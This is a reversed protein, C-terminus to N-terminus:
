KAAMQDVAFDFSVLRMEGAALDISQERTITKGDRVVSVEIKYDKWVQGDELSRTAYYRTRGVAATTNGCLRVTADSPVKLALTTVAPKDFDLAVTKKMGPELNVTSTRVIEQGDRNLVAKIHYENPQGPKARRSVYSRLEGETKTLRDNIFVQADRPLKLSLIALNSAVSDNAKPLIMTDGSDESPRPLPPNELTGSDSPPTTFGPPGDLISPTESSPYIVGGGEIPIGGGEYYGPAFTTGDMLTTGSLPVGESIMGQNLYVGQNSVIPASYSTDVTSLYSSGWSGYGAGSSSAAYSSGWSGGPASVYMGGSSGMGGTSGFSSNGTSAYGGSSGWSGGSSGGWDRDSSRLSRRYAIRDAIGGLLNRVPTRYGIGGGSSGWSGGSGGSSGWSGGSGGSSGWSGGSGGGWSGGSGGSGGGWSGGRSGWSGGFIGGAAMASDTAVFIAGLVLLVGLARGLKFGINMVREWHQVLQPHV